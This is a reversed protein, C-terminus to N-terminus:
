PGSPSGDSDEDEDDVAEILAGTGVVFVLGAAVVLLPNNWGMHPGAGAKRRKKVKAAAEEGQEDGEKEALSLMEAQPRDEIRFSYSQGGIGSVKLSQAGLYLGSGTRVAIRYDGAPLGSLEYTGDAGTPESTHESQDDLSSVLVIAGEIPGGAQAVVKGGLAGAAPAQALAPAIGSLPMALVTIAAVLARLSSRMRREKM